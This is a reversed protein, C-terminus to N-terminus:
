QAGSSASADTDRLDDITINIDWQEGPRLRVLTAALAGRTEEAIRLLVPMGPASSRGRTSTASKRQAIPAAGSVIVALAIVIHAEVVRAVAASGEPQASNRLVIGTIRQGPGYTAAVGYRGAGLDVVHEVTRAAQALASALAVDDDRSVPSSEELAGSGHTEQSSIAGHMM